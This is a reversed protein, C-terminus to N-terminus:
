YVGILFMKAGVAGIDKAPKKDTREQSCRLFPCRKLAAVAFGNICKYILALVINCVVAFNGDEQILGALHIDAQKKRVLSCPLDFVHVDKIGECVGGDLKRAGIIDVVRRNNGFGHFGCRIEYRCLAFAM